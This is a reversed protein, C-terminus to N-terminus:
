SLQFYMLIRSSDVYDFSKLSLRGLIGFRKTNIPYGIDQVM